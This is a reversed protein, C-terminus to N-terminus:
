LKTPLYEDRLKSHRLFGLYRSHLIVPTLSKVWHSLNLNSKKAMGVIEMSLGISVVKTDVQM